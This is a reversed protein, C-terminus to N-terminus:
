KPALWALAAIRGTQGDRRHSYFNSSDYYTCYFGGQIDTVDLAQLQLRALQYLDAMWGGSNDPLFAIAYYPNKQIFAGRVKDGVRFANAGIAPGLWVMLDEPACGLAAVTSQLIGALLGKWGAHAVAVRTARNDCFLVPLCDAVTVACVEGLAFSVMADATDSCDQKGYIFVNRGHEQNIWKPQSPLSLAQSVYQRNSEVAAHDDGVNTSMNLSNFPPKSVGGQRTTIAM